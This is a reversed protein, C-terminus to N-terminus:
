LEFTEGRDQAENRAADPDGDQRAEGQGAIKEPALKLGSYGTFRRESFCRDCDQCRYITNCAHGNTQHVKFSESGCHPCHIKM